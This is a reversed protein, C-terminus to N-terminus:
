PLETTGRTTTVGICVLTGSAGLGRALGTGILFVFWDFLKATLKCLQCANTTSM